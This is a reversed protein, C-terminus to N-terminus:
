LGQRQDKDTYPDHETDHAPIGKKTKQTSLVRKLIHGESQRKGKWWKGLVHSAARTQPRDRMKQKFEETGRKTQTRKKHETKTIVEGNVEVMTKPKCKDKLNAIAIEEKFPCKRKNGTRKSRAGKAQEVIQENTMSELRDLLCARYRERTIASALSFSWPIKYKEKYEDVSMSHLRLHKGIDRYEKGCLLCTIFEGSLYSKVEEINSFPDLVPFGPMVSRRRERRRSHSAM